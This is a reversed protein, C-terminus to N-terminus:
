HISGYVYKYVLVSLVEYLVAKIDEVKVTLYTTFVSPLQLGDDSELTVTCFHCLFRRPQGGIKLLIM